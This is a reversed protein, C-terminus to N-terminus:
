KKGQVKELEYKIDSLRNNYDVEAKEHELITVKLKEILLDQDDIWKKSSTIEKYFGKSESEVTKLKFALEKYETKMKEIVEKLEKIQKELKEM